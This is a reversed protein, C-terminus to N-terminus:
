PNHSKKSLVLLSQVLEPNNAFDRYYMFIRSYDNMAKKQYDNSEKYQQSNIYDKSQLFAEDIIGLKKSMVYINKYYANMRPTRTDKEVFIKLNNIFENRITDKHKSIDFKYLYKNVLISMAWTERSFRLDFRNIANYYNKGRKKCFLVDYMMKNAVLFQDNIKFHKDGLIQKYVNEIEARYGSDKYNAMLYAFYNNKIKWKIDEDSTRIAEKFLLSGKSINNCYNAVISLLLNYCSGADEFRKYYLISKKQFFKNISPRNYNICYSLIEIALLCRIKSSYCKKALLNNAKQFANDKNKKLNLIANVIKLGSRDKANEAKFCPIFEFLRYRFLLVFIHMYKDFSSFTLNRLLDYNFKFNNKLADEIIPYPIDNPRDVLFSNFIYQRLEINFSSYVNNKSLAYSIFSLLTFSNLIFNTSIPNSTFFLDDKNYIVKKSDLIEELTINSQGSDHLYNIVSKLFALNYQCNIFNLFSINVDKGDLRKKNIQYQKYIDAFNNANEYEAESIMAIDYNLGDFILKLDEFTSPKNFSIAEDKDLKSIREFFINKAINNFAFVCIINPSKCNIYNNLRDLNKYEEVNKFVIVIRKEPHKKAYFDLLDLLDGSRKFILTVIDVGDVLINRLFTGLKNLPSVDVLSFLYLGNCLLKVIKIILNRHKSINLTDFLNEIRRKVDPTSNQLEIENDLFIIENSEHRFYDTIFTRFGNQKTETFIIEQKQQILLNDLAYREKCRDFCKFITNKM